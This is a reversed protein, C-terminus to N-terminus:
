VYDDPCILKQVKHVFINVFDTIDKNKSLRLDKLDVYNSKFTVNLNDYDGVIKLSCPLKDNEELFVTINGFFPCDMNKDQPSIQYYGDKLVIKYKLEHILDKM